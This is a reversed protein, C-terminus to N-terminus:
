LFIPVLESYMYYYKDQNKEIFEEMACENLFVVLENKIEGGWGISVGIVLHGTLVQEKREPNPKMLLECEKETVCLAMPYMESGYFNDRIKELHKEATWEDRFMGICSRVYGDGGSMRAVLPSVPYGMNVKKLMYFGLYKLNSERM